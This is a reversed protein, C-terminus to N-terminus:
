DTIDRRAVVTLALGLSIMWAKKADQHIRAQLSAARQDQGKVLDLVQDRIVRWRPTEERNLLSIGEASQTLALAVVREGLAQKNTWLGSIQDLRQRTEPDPALEKVKDLATTFAGNADKLNAHAKPNKPDLLINRLAQGSQLGQAYMTNYHLLRAQDEGLFASFAQTGSRAMILSYALAGLFLIGVLISMLALRAGITFRNLM